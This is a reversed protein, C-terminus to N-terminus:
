DKQTRFGGWGGEGAYVRCGAAACGRMEEAGRANIDENTGLGAQYLAPKTISSLHEPM